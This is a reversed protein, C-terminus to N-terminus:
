APPMARCGTGCRCPRIWRCSTPRRAPQKEHHAAGAPQRQGRDGRGPVKQGYRGPGGDQAYGWFTTAPLNTHVKQTFQSAVVKYYDSGPFTATDPTLVTLYQGLNNAGAATLGPLSDVFKTLIPSQSFAYARASSFGRRLDFKWPIAAAAGAMGMLKLFRRRNM